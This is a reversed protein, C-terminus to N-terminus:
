KIEEKNYEKILGDFHIIGSHILTYIALVGFVLDKTIVYVLINIISTIPSIYKWIM